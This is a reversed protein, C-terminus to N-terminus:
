GPSATVSMRLQRLDAGSKSTTAPRKAVRSAETKAQSAAGRPATRHATRRGAAGVGQAQAPTRRGILTGPVDAVRMGRGPGSPSLGKHFRPAAIAVM